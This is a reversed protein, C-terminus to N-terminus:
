DSKYKSINLRTRAMERRNDKEKIAERKDFEKKGRGLIIEIKVFGKDTFYMKYPVITLGKESVRREWKKLEKRQLLLKRTRRADHNFYTGNEYEPIHLNRIFLENKEFLCYADTLNVKGGRVAKVETGSLMIGAELSDLFQYEFRARKNIYDPTNKKKKDTM